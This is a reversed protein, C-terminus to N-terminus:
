FKLSLNFFKKPTQTRVYFKGVRSLTQMNTGTVTLPPQVQLCCPSECNSSNWLLTPFYSKFLIGRWPM